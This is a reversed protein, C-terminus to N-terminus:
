FTIQDVLNDSGVVEAGCIEAGSPFYAGQNCANIAGYSEGAAVFVSFSQTNSSQPSCTAGKQTWYVNVSFYTDVSVTDSLGVSASMYDDITGGICPEMSGNVSTVNLLKGGDGCPGNPTLNCENGLIVSGEKACFTTADYGSVGGVTVQQVDGMCDIYASTQGQASTTSVTYNICVIPPPCEIASAIAVASTSQDSSYEGPPCNTRVTVDYAVGCEIGSTIVVPSASDEICIFPTTAGVPRYCIEYSSIGSVPTFNITLTAM